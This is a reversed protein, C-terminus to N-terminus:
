ISVLSAGSPQTYRARDNHVALSLPQLCAPLTRQRCPDLLRETLEHPGRPLAQEGQADADPETHHVLQHLELDGLDRAGLALAARVARGLAVAVLVARHGQTAPAHRHAPRPDARGVVLVLQRDLRVPVEGVAVRQRPRHHVPHESREVRLNECTPSGTPDRTSCDAAAVDFVDTDTINTSRVVVASSTSMDRRSSSTRRATIISSPMSIASRVCTTASPIV